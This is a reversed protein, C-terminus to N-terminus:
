ALDFILAEANKTATLTVKSEDSIALGDGAALKQNNATLEGRLLQIWAHRGKALSLTASKGSDLLTAFLRADANIPISGDAGDPSAVLRLQNRRSEESFHKQDYAPKINETAPEIWIQMLHVPETPSPNFESHMIGSGASMHQVDGPVIQHAAGTSDKHALTGSLIYTIIEMNDHPHSGFGRGPAVIDENIVRLSRFGMFKPDYYRAFSFSHFTDLWGHDFHGRASSPRLTLM